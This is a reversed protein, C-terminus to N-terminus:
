ITISTELEKEGGGSTVDILASVVTYPFFLLFFFFCHSQGQRSIVM